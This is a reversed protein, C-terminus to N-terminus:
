SLLEPARLWAGRYSVEAGAIASILVQTDEGAEGRGFWASEVRKFGGYRPLAPCKFDKPIQVELAILFREETQSSGARAISM